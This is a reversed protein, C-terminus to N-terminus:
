PWIDQAFSLNISHRAALFEYLRCEAPYDHNGEKTKGAEYIGIGWFGASSQYEASFADEVPLAIGGRIIDFGVLVVSSGEKSQSIAWCAAVGGRTLQWVGTEGCGWDQKRPQRTYIEQNIVRAAPPLESIMGRYRGLLSGIWGQAPQRQNHERWDRITTKHVEILGVDYRTGYDEPKQWHWNWM